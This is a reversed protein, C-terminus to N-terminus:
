RRHVDRRKLAVLAGALLAVLMGALVAVCGAVGLRDGGPFYGEAMDPNVSPAGQQAGSPGVERGETELLLLGEFAWRSPMVDAVAPAVIDHRPILAGGLIVMPLLLLPVLAVAVESTRALASVLLGLAVGALATLVLLGLMALWPGQLNCGWHVVGILIVCQLVCLGGLVAFKSALYSPIKLNIMRERHYIAWEAVIERASNSVGFWIAALALLFLTVGLRGSMEELNAATVSQSVKRGMGLVILLAIVPSQTMLIATNWADRSKVALSRKVLTPWQEAGARRAIKPTVAQGSEANREEAREVVYQRHYQSDAYRRVWEAAGGRALGRLVEDPSAPTGAEREPNFFEAADPSAPGYYVLRGPDAGGADRSVVILNDMLRFIEPGPQHITILITKGEDALRRLLKMVMLADESSLGSTPEDLFLLSPDSLLEMALNVRKRQGGSLGKKEPSGILVDEVGALGVQSIVEAIRKELGAESYDTPLRLRATYYLAEKVTLDRHMIDDQPVYGLHGCFRGYNAYLNQGGILAAGASPPTYGNLAMMLTTKGAGAPGMLGVLESPLITLSIDEILRRGGAAVSVHRAEIALNGRHDRKELRGSVTLAFTYSGLGIVDGPRVTVLHGPGPIRRGNVFTGNTSGLDEVAGTEGNATLRAHRWSVMPYDLPHDCDPDRGLVLSEGNFTLTTRSRGPSPQREQPLPWPMAVSRGLTIVDARTVRAPGTIRKGNVFTGNTSGLDELKFADSADAMATLRCHRASVRENPAVLDCEPASGITWSRAERATDSQAPLDAGCRDCFRAGPPVVKQCVPCTM